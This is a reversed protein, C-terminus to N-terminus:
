DQDPPIHRALDMADHLIRLVEVIQRDKGRGLRFLIFHRGRLGKRAVHLTFLGRAIDERRRAGSMAPGESLCTLSDSLTKAYSVAQAEGFQQHTWRVIERFDDEAAHALRVRWL